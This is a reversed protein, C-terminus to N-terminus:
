GIIKLTRTNGNKTKIQNVEVTLGSEFHLDGFIARLTSISNYIGASTATYSKGDMDILIVRFADRESTEYTEDTWPTTGDTKDKRSDVLKVAKIVVDRITIQKNICDGIRVDPNNIANYLKIKGERDDPRFSCFTDGVTVDNFVCIGGNAAPVMMQNNAM